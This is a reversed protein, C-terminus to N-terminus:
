VSKRKPMGYAADFFRNLMAMEDFLRYIRKEFKINFLEQQLSRYKNEKKTLELLNIVKKIM